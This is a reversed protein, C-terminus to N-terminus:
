VTTEKRTTHTSTTTGHETAVTVRYTIETTIRVPRPEAPPLEPLGPPKPWESRPLAPMGRFSQLYSVAQGNDGFRDVLARFGRRGITRMHESGYRAATTRGGRSAIRRCHEARRERRELCDACVITGYPGPTAHKCPKM